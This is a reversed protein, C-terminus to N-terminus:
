KGELEALQERFFKALAIKEAKDPAPKERWLVQLDDMHKQGLLGVLAKYSEDPHDHQYRHCSVCACICNRVDWRLNRFRRSKIHSANMQTSCPKGFCGWLQCENNAVARIYRSFLSDLVAVSPVREGKKKAPKKGLMEARAAKRAKEAEREAPTRTKLPARRM